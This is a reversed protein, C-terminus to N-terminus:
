AVKVLTRISQLFNESVPRDAGKCYHSQLGQLKPSSQLQNHCKMLAYHEALAM